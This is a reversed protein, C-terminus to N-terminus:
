ALMLATVLISMLGFVVGGFGAGVMLVSKEADGDRNADRLALLCAMFAVVFGVLVPGGTVWQLWTPFYDFPVGSVTFGFIETKRVFPEGNM